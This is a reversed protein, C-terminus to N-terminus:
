NSSHFHFNGANWRAHNFYNPPQLYLNYFCLFSYYASSPSYIDRLFNLCTQIRIPRQYVTANRRDLQTQPPYQRLFPLISHSFFKHMIFVKTFRPLRWIDTPYHRWSPPLLSWLAYLINPSFDTGLLYVQSM